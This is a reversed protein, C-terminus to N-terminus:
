ACLATAHLSSEQAEHGTCPQTKSNNNNNDDNNQVGMHSLGRKEKFGGVMGKEPRRDQLEEM